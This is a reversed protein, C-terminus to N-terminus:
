RVPAPLRRLYEDPARALQRLIRESRTSYFPLGALLLPAFMCTLVTCGSYLLSLLTARVMSPRERRSLATLTDQIAVPAALFLQSCLLILITTVTLTALGGAFVVTLPVTPSPAGRFAEYLARGWTALAGSGYLAILLRMQWVWVSLVLGWYITFPALGTLFWQRLEGTEVLRQVRQSALRYGALWLAILVLITIFLAQVFVMAPPLALGILWGLGSLLPAVDFRREAVFFRTVPNTTLRGHMWDFLPYVLLPALLRQVRTWVARTTAWTESEMHVWLWAIALMLGRWLLPMAVLMPFEPPPLRVVSAWIPTSASLAVLPSLIGLGAYRDPALLFWLIPILELLALRGLPVRMCWARQLLGRYLAGFPVDALTLILWLAWFASGMLGIGQWFAWGFLVAVSLGRVLAVEQLHVGWHQQVPDRGRLTTLLLLNLWGAMLFILVASAQLRQADNWLPTWEWVLAFVLLLMGTAPLLWAYRWLGSPMNLWRARREWRLGETMLWVLAFRGTDPLTYMWALPMLLRLLIPLGILLAFLWGSLAGFRARDIERLSGYGFVLLILTLPEWFGVFSLMLYFSLLILVLPDAFAFLLWLLASEWAPVGVWAGWAVYLPLWLIHGQLRYFLAPLGRQLLLAHPALDLMRFQDLNGTQLDRLFSPNPLRRELQGRAMLHAVVLATLSLYPSAFGRKFALGFLAALGFALAGLLAYGWMSRILSEGKVRRYELRWFPLERWRVEM